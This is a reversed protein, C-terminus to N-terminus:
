VVVVWVIIIGAPCVVPVSTTGVVWSLMSSGLSVKVTTILALLKGGDLMVSVAIPVIVSSSAVGVTVMLLGVTASPFLAGNTIVRDPGLETSVTISIVVVVPVAPM